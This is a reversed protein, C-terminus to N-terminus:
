KDTESDMTRKDNKKVETKKISALLWLEGTTFAFFAGILAVPETGQRDFIWLVFGTFIINLIIVLLVIRKAFRTKM